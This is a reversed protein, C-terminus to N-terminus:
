SDRWPGRLLEEQRQAALDLDEDDEQERWWVERETPGAATNTSAPADCPMEGAMTAAAAEDHDEATRNLLRTFIDEDRLAELLVETLRRNTGAATLRRRYLVSPLRVRLQMM